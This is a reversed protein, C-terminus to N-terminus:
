NGNQYKIFAWSMQRSHTHTHPRSHSTCVCVNSHVALLKWKMEFIKRTRNANWDHVRERKANPTCTHRNSTTKAKLNIKYLNKQKNREKKERREGGWKIGLRCKKSVRVYAYQRRLEARRWEMQSIKLGRSTVATQKNNWPNQTYTEIERNSKLEYSYKYYIKTYVTHMDTRTVARVVFEASEDSIYMVAAQAFEECFGIKLQLTNEWAGMM